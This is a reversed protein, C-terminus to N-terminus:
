SFNLGHLNAQRVFTIEVIETSRFLEVFLYIHKKESSDERM